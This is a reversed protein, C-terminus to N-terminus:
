LFFTEYSLKDIFILSMKQPGSRPLSHKETLEFMTFQYGDFCNIAGNAKM